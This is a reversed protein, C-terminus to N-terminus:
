KGQKAQNLYPDFPNTGEFYQLDGVIGLRNKGVHTPMFDCNVLRGGVPKGAKKTKGMKFNKGTSEEESKLYFQQKIFAVLHPKNTYHVQSQDHMQIAFKYYEDMDASKHKILKTHALFIINIKKEKCIAYCWEWIDRHMDAVISFAKGFGGCASEISNAEKDGAVIEKRFIEDLGTVTDIVITKYPHEENALWKLLDFVEQSTTCLDSEVVDDRDALGSTGDETRIFVPNQFEAALTTKGSGHEGFFTAIIAESRQPSKFPGTDFATM